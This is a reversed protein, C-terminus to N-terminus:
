VPQGAHSFPFGVHGNLQAVSLIGVSDRKTGTEEARADCRAAPVVNGRSKLPIIGKGAVSIEDM